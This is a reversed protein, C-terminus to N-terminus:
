ECSRQGLIDTEREGSVRIERARRDCSWRQGLPGGQTEAIVCEKKRWRSLWLSLSRFVTQSCLNRWRSIDFTGEYQTIMGLTPPLQNPDEWTTENAVKALGLNAVFQANHIANCISDTDGNFLM